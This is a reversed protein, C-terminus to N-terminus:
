ARRASVCSSPMKCAYRPTMIKISSSRTGISDMQSVGELSLPQLHRRGAWRRIRKEASKLSRAFAQRSVNKRGLRRLRSTTTPCPDDPLSLAIVGVARLEVLGVAGKVREEDSATVHLNSGPHIGLLQPEKVGGHPNVHLEKAAPPLAILVLQIGDDLLQTCQQRLLLQVAQLM